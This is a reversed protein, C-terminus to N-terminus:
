KIKKCFEDAYKEVKKSIANMLEIAEQEIQAGKNQQFALINQQM